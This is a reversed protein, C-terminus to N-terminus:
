KQENIEEVEAIEFELKNILNRNGYEIVDLVKEEAGEPTYYDAAFFTVTIAFTKAM